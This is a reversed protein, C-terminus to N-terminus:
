PEHEVEMLRNHCSTTHGYYHKCGGNHYKRLHRTYYRCLKGCIWCKICQRPHASYGRDTLSPYTMISCAGIKNDDAQWLTRM